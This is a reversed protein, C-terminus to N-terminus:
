QAREETSTSAALGNFATNITAALTGISRQISGCVTECLALVSDDAIRYYSYNGDRRREVIGAHQLLALHKSVNQQSSGLALTLEQVSAEGQRLRDLIRIRTPEGIARFREAILEVLADPLPSPLAM